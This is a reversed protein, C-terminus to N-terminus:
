FDLAGPAACHDFRFFDLPAREPPRAQMELAEPLHPLLLYEPRAARKRPIDFNFIFGGGAIMIPMDGLPRDGGDPEPPRWGKVLIDTTSILSISPSSGADAM